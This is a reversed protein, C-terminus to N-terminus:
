PWCGPGCACIGPGRGDGRPGSGAGGSLDGVKRAASLAGAGAAGGRPRCAPDADRGCAPFAAGAAAAHGPGRRWVRGRPPAGRSTRAPRCPRRRGLGGGGGPRARRPGPRAAMEPAAQCSAGSRGPASGALDDSLRAAGGVPDPPRPPDGGGRPHDAAAAGSAARLPPPLGAARAGAVQGQAHAVSLGSRSGPDGGAGIRRGTRGAPDQLGGVVENDARLLHREARHGAAAAEAFARSQLLPARPADAIVRDYAADEAPTWDPTTDRTTNTPFAACAPEPSLDDAPTPAVPNVPTNLRAGPPSASCTRPGAARGTAPSRWM